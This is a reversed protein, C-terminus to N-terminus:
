NFILQEFEKSAENKLVEIFQKNFIISREKQKVLEMIVKQKEVNPLPLKIEKLESETIAPYLGGTMRNKLQEVGYICKLFQLFYPLYYNSNPEFITFGSSCIDNDFEKTVIAFKKLYPRTTGIILDGEKIIQTARSPAKNIPLEKAELIGKIPDIAGIEIYKFTDQKAIKKNWSRKAITFSNGVKSLPYGSKSICNSIRIDTSFYDWRDLDQYSTILLGKSKTKLEFPKLGLQDLFYSEINAELNLIGEELKKAEEMKKNYAKVLSDQEELSPLPIQYELVQYPRIAAYNTSGTSKVQKSFQPQKVVLGLFAPLLKSKDIEFLFYHGSVIANELELPVIGYGGVKADIEAVLFDDTKCLQQKKTKIEKGLVEDRLVVGKGQIQVRCRKYTQTDDISIFGKRRSLVEGLNVLPYKSDISNKNSLTYYDWFVTKDLATLKLFQYNTAQM